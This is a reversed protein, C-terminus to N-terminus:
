RRLIGVADHRAMRSRRLVSCDRVGGIVVRSPVFFSRGAVGASLAGRDSANWSSVTSLADVGGCGFSWGWFTVPTNRPIISVKKFRQGTRWGVIVSRRQFFWFGCPMRCYRTSFIWRRDTKGEGM